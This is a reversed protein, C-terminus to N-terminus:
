FKGFILSNGEFQLNKKRLDFILSLKKIFDLLKLVLIKTKTTVIKRLDLNIQVIIRNIMM